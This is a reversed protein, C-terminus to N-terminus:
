APMVDRVALMSTMRETVYAVREASQNSPPMVVVAGDQLKAALPEVTKTDNFCLTLDGHSDYVLVNPREQAIVADFLSKLCDNDLTEFQDVAVAANAASM